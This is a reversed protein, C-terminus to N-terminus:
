GRSGVEEQEQATARFALAAQLYALILPHPTEPTSSFQPLFLTAVFFRHRPLEVIRVEGELDVGAVRLESRSMEARYHPNLGYNCRFQETVVENQYIQHAVTGPRIKVQQTVGVLSCSLKSILLTSANPASEEHEADAM